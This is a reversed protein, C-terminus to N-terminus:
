EKDDVNENSDATEALSKMGARRIAETFVVAIILIWIAIFQSTSLVGVYGRESDDRVFEILFRGISYLMLYHGLIIGPTKRYKYIYLLLFFLALDMAAMFLQTPLLKVGAPALCGEPFTVGLFSDTPKGYCCGAMFCGLRGFAQALAALTVILDMYDFPSIKKIRCYTYMTIVALIIGGYVVFGSSSIARSPNKIFDGFNVITYLIKGGLFGMILVWIALNTLHDPSLNRKVCIKCGTLMAVLFGIGIMLGYGHITVPGISFLDIAM